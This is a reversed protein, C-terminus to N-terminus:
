RVKYQILGAYILASKAKGMLERSKYERASDAFGGAKLMQVLKNCCNVSMTLMNPVTRAVTEHLTNFNQARRKADGIDASPDL